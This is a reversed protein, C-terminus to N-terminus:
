PTACTIDPQVEVQTVGTASRAQQQWATSNHTTTLVLLAHSQAFAHEQGMPTWDARAEQPLREYCPNTLRFGLNISEDLAADYSTQGTFTMRVLTGAADRALTALTGPPAYQLIPCSMPGGPQVSVVGPLARLPTLWNPKSMPTADVILSPFQVFGQGLPKWAVGSPECLVGVALGLDTVERLAQDYPVGSAFTVYAEYVPESLVQPPPASYHWLLTGDDARIAELMGKETAVFFTGAAVAYPLSARDWSAFNDIPQQWLVSGDSARLGYVANSQTIAQILGHDESIGFINDVHQHWLPSGDSARVAALGSDGERFYVAGDRVVPWEPIPRATNARNSRWLVHGDSARLAYVMGSAAVYVVGGVVMPVTARGTFNQGADPTFRWLRAGTASDVADVASAPGDGVALYAVGGAVAPLAFEGGAQYTWLLKGDSARVAYLSPQSAGSPVYGEAYVVDGAVEVSQPILIPATYRWLLGGDSARLAYITSGAASPFDDNVFIAGGSIALDMVPTPFTYHWLVRGTAADLAYAANSSEGNTEVYVVHNVVAYLSASGTLNRQWLLKGGSSQFAYVLGNGAGLYTIGGSTLVSEYHGGTAPGLVQPVGSVPTGAGTLKGGVATPVAGRNTIQGCTAMLLTIALGLVQITSRWREWRIMRVANRVHM